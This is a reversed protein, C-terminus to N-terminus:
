EEKNFYLIRYPKGTDLRPITNPAMGSVTELYDAHRDYMPDPMMNGDWVNHAGRNNPGSNVFHNGKEGFNTDIWFIVHATAGTSPNMSWSGELGTEGWMADAALSWSNVFADLAEVTSYETGNSTFTTDIASKMAKMGMEFSMAEGTETTYQESIENLLSTAACATEWLDESFGLEETWQKQTFYTPEQDAMGTPDVYKVPNNSCYSYWNTAEIMSYGARPKGDSGMPNILEFGAPDASM